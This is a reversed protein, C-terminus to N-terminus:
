ASLVSAFESLSAETQDRNLLANRRVYAKLSPIEELTAHWSAKLTKGNKGIRGKADVEIRFNVAKRVSDPFQSLWGKASKDVAIRALTTYFLYPLSAIQKLTPALEDHFNTATMAAAALKIFSLLVLIERIFGLQKIGIFRKALLMILARVVAEETRSRGALPSLTNSTVIWSDIILSKLVAVSGILPVGGIDVIIQYFRTSVQMAAFSISGHELIRTALANPENRQVLQNNNGRSTPNLPETPTRQSLISTLTFDIDDEVRTEENDFSLAILPLHHRQSDM